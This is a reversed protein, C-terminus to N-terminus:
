KNGWVKNTEAAATLAGDAGDMVSLVATDDDPDQLVLANGAGLILARACVEIASCSRVCM